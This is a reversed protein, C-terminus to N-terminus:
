PRDHVLFGGAFYNHPGDVHLNYTLGQGAELELQQVSSLKAEAEDLAVLATGLALDEARVWGSDTFFPHNDTALLEGNIRVFRRANERVIQRTVRAPVLTRTAVDFSLVWDSPEVQEIPKRAGSALTIPTGAPFCEVRVDPPIPQLNALVADIDCAQLFTSLVQARYPLFVDTLAPSLTGREDIHSVGLSKPWTSGCGLKRGEPMVQDPAHCGACTLAAFRRAIADPTLPDDAPCARNATLLQPALWESLKVSEQVPSSALRQSFNPSAAGSVASEGAEFALALRSRFIAVNTSTLQETSDALEALFAGDVADPALGFLAPRLSQSNTVPVFSLENAKELNSTLAARFQRFQFPAQMGQGVRVQGCRGTYRCRSGSNGFHEPVLVPDFRGIGEFYLKSLQQKQEAIPLSSLGAWLQAVSRCAALSGENNFLAGEFILFVRDQPDSLGSQKAYVIRYEGCTSRDSPALDFRNVLAVPAFFDTDGATLMGNSRALRGEARPCDVAKENLFAANEASDCHPVDSFAGEATTNETDFLRQLLHEPSREVRAREALQLLVRELSFDVLVEPDRVILESGDAKVGRTPDCEAGLEVLTPGPDPELIIIGTGGLGAGIDGGSAAAGASGASGGHAVQVSSPVQADDCAPTSALLLFPVLCNIAQKIGVRGM